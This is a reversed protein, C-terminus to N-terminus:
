PAIQRVVRTRQNEFKLIVAPKVPNRDKDFRIAGTVGAFGDTAALAERIRDRDLSQCTRIAHAVLYAADYALAMGANVKSPTFQTTIKKFFERSRPDTLERHWHTLYYTENLETTAYNTMLHSWGDGGVIPVLVGKKRATRIIQASDRTYGPLLVAQFDSKLLDDILPTFDGATELYDLEVAVAGGLREIERIFQRSLEMSYIQDANTLVAVRDAKLDRRIFRALMKGQFSDIFCARFIFNGVQTVKPNTALPTVMPIGAKQLVPAVALAHSSWSPGLVATVNESVAQRAANRSGLATSRNDIELLRIQRGLLGGTRNIETIAFRTSLLHELSNGAAEGTMSFIAAIKIPAQDEARAGSLDHGAVSVLCMLVMLFRKM